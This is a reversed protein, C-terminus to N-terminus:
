GIRSILTLPADIISPRADQTIRTGIPQWCEYVFYHGCKHAISVAVQERCWESFSHWHLTLSIHDQLNPLQDCFQDIQHTIFYNAMTIPLFALAPM